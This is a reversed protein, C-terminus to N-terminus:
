KECIKSLLFGYGVSVHRHFVCLFIVLGESAESPFLKKDLLTTGPLKLISTKNSGAHNAIM